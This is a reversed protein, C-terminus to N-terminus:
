YLYPEDPQETTTIEAPVLAIPQESSTGPNSAFSGTVRVWEDIPHAAEWDPLYVPVGVPQADVACCTVVFRTVFFMDSSGAPDPTVIGVVDVPKDAYFALDGTQRLLSSWDLVTFRAFTENSASAAADVSQADAGISTSNLSRQGATASSLTAPPLVLLTVALATTLAAGAISLGRSVARPPPAARDHDHDHHDHDNPEHREGSRRATAGLVLVLGIAAMIVTFVVYRPHIYLVLQNTVALWVTAVLSISILIM